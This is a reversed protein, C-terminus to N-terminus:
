QMVETNKKEVLTHAEVLHQPKDLLQFKGTQDDYLGLHYLDFDKPYKAVNQYWGPLNKADENVIGRVYRKAEEDGRQYFPQNFVGARSDKISYIQVQM